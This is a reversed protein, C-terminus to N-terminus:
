TDEVAPVLQLERRFCDLRAILARVEIEGYLAEELLQALPDGPSVARLQDFIEPRSAPYVRLRILRSRVYQTLASLVLESAASEDGAALLEKGLEISKEARGRAVDASPLPLRIM